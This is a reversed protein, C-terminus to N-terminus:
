LRCKILESAHEIFDEYKADPNFHQKVLQYLTEAVIKDTFSYMVESTFGLGTISTNELAEVAKFPVAVFDDVTAIQDLLDPYMGEVYDVEDDNLDAESFLSQLLSIQVTQLYKNIERRVTESDNSSIAVLDLEVDDFHYPVRDQLELFAAYFDTIITNASHNSDMLFALDAHGVTANPSFLDERAIHLKVPAQAQIFQNLNLNSM